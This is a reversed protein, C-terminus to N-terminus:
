RLFRDSFATIVCFAGKLDQTEEGRAAVELGLPARAAGLSPTLVFVMKRCGQGLPAFFAHWLRAEADFHQGCAPFNSHQHQMRTCVAVDGSAFTGSRGDFAEKSAM